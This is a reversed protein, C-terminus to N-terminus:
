QAARVSSSLRRGRADYTYETIKGPEAIRTPVRFQAHWETTMTRAEPSGAAETRSLELGRADRIYTTMNGNWDTKSSLFGNVDYDYAQSGGGCSATPHGELQTVKRVGQITQFYYTTQKGLPNDVTTTGGADYTLTTRDAGNAHESSIARGQDDYSWTAYREGNEDTIGTLAHPFATNEYHYRRTPNDTEDSPTDDPYAVQSLNGIGDYAYLYDHGQPDTMRTIRSSADYAFTLSEGTYSTVRDLTDRQDDGGDSSSLEYEFTISQGERNEMRILHGEIDYQEVSDASTTYSWGIREGGADKTELLVEPIDADGKWQTGDFNFVFVQGTGRYVLAHTGGVSIRGSYHHEWKTGAGSNIEWGSSNYHRELRLPFPGAGVYDRERVYNNGTAVYIPNGVTPSGGKTNECPPGPMKEQKFDKIRLCGWLYPAVLRYETGTPCVEARTRHVAMAGVPHEPCGNGNWDEQWAYRVENIVEFGYRSFKPRTQYNQCFSNVPASADAWDNTRVLFQRGPAPPDGCYCASNADTAQQAKAVFEDLIQQLSSADEYVQTHRGCPFGRGFADSFCNMYKYTAPLAPLCDGADICDDIGDAGSPSAVVLGLIIGLGIGSSRGLVTKFRAIVPIIIKRGSIM